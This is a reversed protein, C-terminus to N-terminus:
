VKEILNRMVLTSLSSGKMAYAIPTHEIGTSSKERDGTSLLFMLIETTKKRNLEFSKEMIEISRGCLESIDSQIQEKSFQNVEVITQKKYPNKVRENNTM